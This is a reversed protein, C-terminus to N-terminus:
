RRKEWDPTKQKAHRIYLVRIENLRIEYAIIYHFRQMLGKRIHHGIVPGSEPFRRIQKAWEEFAALFDAGLGAEAELYQAAAILETRALRHLVIKV